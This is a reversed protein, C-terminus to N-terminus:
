DFTRVRTMDDSSSLLLLLLISLHLDPDTPRWISLCRKGNRHVVVKYHKNFPRLHSDSPFLTWHIKQTEHISPHKSQNIIFTLLDFKIVDVSLRLLLLLLHNGNHVPSLSRSSSKQYLFTDCLIYFFPEANGKRWSPPQADSAKPPNYDFVFQHVVLLSSHLKNWEATAILSLRHCFLSSLLSKSIM